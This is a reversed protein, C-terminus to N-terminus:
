PAGLLRCYGSLNRLTVLHFHYYCYQNISLSIFIFALSPITDAPKVSGLASVIQRPGQNIHWSNLSESSYYPRKQKPKVYACNLLYVIEKLSFM